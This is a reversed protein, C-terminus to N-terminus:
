KLNGLLFLVQRSHQREDQALQSFVCGYEGDSQRSEYETISRLEQLYCRRLISERVGQIQPNPGTPFQQGTLLAYIGKLCAAHSQEQQAMKKLM